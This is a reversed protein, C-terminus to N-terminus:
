MNLINNNFNELAIKVLSKLGTEDYLDWAKKAKNVSLGNNKLEQFVKISADGVIFINNDYVNM